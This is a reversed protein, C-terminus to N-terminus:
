KLRKLRFLLFLGLSETSINKSLGLLGQQGRAGDVSICSLEWSWQVKKAVADM